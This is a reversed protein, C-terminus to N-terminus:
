PQKSRVLDVESREEATHRIM